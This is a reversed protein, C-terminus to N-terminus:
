KEEKEEKEEKEDEKEEKDAAKGSKLIKMSKVIGELDTGHEKEAKESGWYLLTVVQKESISIFTLNIKCDGDADKGTWYITSAKLGNIEGDVTKQSDKDIKVGAKVLYDITGKVSDELSSDDDTQAYVQVANDETVADVSEDEHTVTWGKPFSISFVSEEKPIKYEEAKLPSLLLALAGFSLLLTKMKLPQLSKPVTEPFPVTPAIVYENPILELSNLSAPARRHLPESSFLWEDLAQRGAPTPFM